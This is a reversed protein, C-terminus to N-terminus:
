KGFYVVHTAWKPVRHRSYQVRSMHTATAFYASGDGIGAWTADLTTHDGSGPLPELLPYDFPDAVRVSMCVFGDPIGFGTGVYTVERHIVSGSYCGTDPSFRHLELIDGVQFGRDNKRFEHVKKGTVMAAFPDPWCKLIHVSM